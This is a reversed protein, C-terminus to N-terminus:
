VCDELAQVTIAKDCLVFEKDFIFPEIQIRAIGKYNGYLLTEEAKENPKLPKKVNDIASIFHIETEGRDNKLTYLPGESVNSARAIFGDINFLGNNKLTLIIKNDDNLCSYDEIVLSTGEPCEEAEKPMYNKLWAYVLLSLSITIVVLLVYGVIISVGKKNLM